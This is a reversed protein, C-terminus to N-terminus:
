TGCPDATNILRWPKPTAWRHHERALITARESSLAARLEAVAPRMQVTLDTLRRDALRRCERDLAQQAALDRSADHLLPLMDSLLSYAAHKLISRSARVQHRASGTLTKELSKLTYDFPFSRDVWLQAWRSAVGIRPDAFRAQVRGMLPDTEGTLGRATAQRTYASGILCEMSVLLYSIATHFPQGTTHEAVFSEDAVGDVIDALDLHPLPRLLLDTRGQFAHTATLEDLTMLQDFTIYTFRTPVGLASLMRIALVNQESTTEKNFRQLISTVGSEVGFLCRRLGRAILTRWMAAREINWTRDQDPQVVQDIRCSTEWQLGARQLVSALRLARPVATADRGIFEEDVLYVIPPVDPFQEFVQRYADLIRALGDPDAGAWAGKQGRPCFSCFNTCGRSSELQAVGGHRFTEALLDLEPWIDTQLRNAVTATRRVRDVQVLATRGRHAQREGRGSGVCQTDNTAAHPDYYGIGRVQDLMLDGHWLALLDQITPEGAGRAILLRPYRDLLLRENRVTLSGGAVLMPPRRRATLHDLLETMLDHQGFTASVGVIDPEVAAVRTLVDDLTHGLQLDMLEVQGLLTARAARALDSIGLPFRPLPFHEPHYLAVLLVRPAMLRAVGEATVTAASLWHGPDNITLRGRTWSPWDRTGHPRGSLDVATWATATKPAHDQCHSILVLRRDLTGTVVTRGDGVVRGIASTLAAPDTLAANTLDGLDNM